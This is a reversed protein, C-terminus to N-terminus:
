LPDLSPARHQRCLLLSNHLRHFPPPCLTQSPHQNKGRGESFEPIKQPDHFFDADMEFMIDAGMEDVAYNMARIYAAGLGKKPGTTLGINKWKKMMNKIEEATGDPSNDDAILIYMDYKKLEPFIENENYTPIIIVVKKM